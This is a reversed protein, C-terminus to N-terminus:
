RNSPSATPVAFPLQVTPIAGTMHARAFGISVAAAAILTCLGLALM